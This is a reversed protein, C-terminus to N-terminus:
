SIRPWSELFVRNSEDLFSEWLPPQWQWTSSTPSQRSLWVKDKFLTESRIWDLIERIRVWSMRRQNTSSWHVFLLFSRIISTYVSSDHKKIMCKQSVFSAQRRDHFVCMTRWGQDFEKRCVKSTRYFPHNMLLNQFRTIFEVRLLQVKWSQLFFRPSCHINENWIVRAGHIILVKTTHRVCLHLNHRLDSGDSFGASLLFILKRMRWKPLCPYSVDSRTCSCSILNVLLGISCHM